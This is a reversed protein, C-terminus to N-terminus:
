TLVGQSPNLDATCRWLSQGAAHYKREFPTLAGAPTFCEAQAPYGSLALARAFEDAYLRWNTRMELLGGLQLLMPWSPAAHFRRKLHAPKPWPNPYLLYHRELRWGAEVALRWFDGLEARVLLYDAATRYGHEHTSLRAASQDVGVVLAHPYLAALRATSEGVGCGSDFILPRGANEVTARLREFAQRTHAAIPKCFPHVLHRRVVEDLRAHPGAQPSTV